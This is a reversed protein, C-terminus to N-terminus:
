KNEINILDFTTKLTKAAAIKIGQLKGTCNFVNQHKRISSVM